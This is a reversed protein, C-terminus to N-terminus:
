RGLRGKLKTKLVFDRCCTKKWLEPFFEYSIMKKISSTCLPPSFLSAYCFVKFSIIALQFEFGCVCVVKNIRLGVIVVQRSVKYLLIYGRTQVISRIPGDFACVCLLALRSVNTHHFRTRRLTKFRQILIYFSIGQELSQIWVWNRWWSSDSSPVHVNPLRESNKGGRVSDM